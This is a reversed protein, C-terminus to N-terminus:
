ALSGEKKKGRTLYSGLNPKNKAWAGMQRASVNPCYKDYAQHVYGAFIKRLSELQDPDNCTDLLHQFQRECLNWYMETAKGASPSQNNGVDTFYGHVAKWLKSSLDELGAMESELSAFWTEGIDESRLYVVSEIFDDTQKVNQDGATARVQLGGSWIGVVPQVRRARGFLLSIQPCNFSSTNGNFATSLLATLNRWPKKGTDLWIIKGEPNYTMFPERWGDKHSPYQIGEVYIVGDDKLLVFRSMACLTSMFSAKLRRAASDDEGAPMDEWPPILDKGAWNPFLSFQEKTFLNLWITDLISEGILFSNLYGVYNGLSPAPKASGTKGSYEKSLPPVDKATRKGGPSYNMISVVFVAKEADSLVRDKQTEFLISDNESPLDPLYNRGIISVPLSKNKTTVLNELVPMQLFPKEGYLWFLDRKDELYLLCREALGNIGINGWELNDEPTCARQAIALLLKLLSIKHIANGGLARLKKNSFIEKLSAREWDVVPIWPEDVLNFRNTM